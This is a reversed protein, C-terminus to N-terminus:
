GGEAMRGPGLIGHPDFSETVRRSLARLAAPQPEFVPVHARVDRDARILTAHGGGHHAVAARVVGAHADPAPGLVLWLLGGGWDMQRGRLAEEGVGRRVAALVRAGSAPPVSLRWVIADTLEALLRGDRIETWLVQSDETSLASTPGLPALETRLAQCRWLVSPAPGEVRLATVAQGDAAIAAVASRAAMEAPWHAAGSVEHSSGLGRTMVEVAQGEDLGLVLVTAATEPRPVTRLSLETLAALTGMAGTMLKSLDFGTVNKVVRGGSKFVEGRGSVGAVGLVHDRAAGASIRRPGALNCAILGGLTGPRDQPGDPQGLLARWDPPEFALMQGAEDLAAQIDALSTGARATMVLENPAYDVIGAIASLDLVHSTNTPRGLNSKTGHGRLDLPTRATVAWAIVDAVQTETEPRYTQTM